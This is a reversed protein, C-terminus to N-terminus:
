YFRTQLWMALALESAKGMNDRGTDQGRAVNEPNQFSCKFVELSSIIKTKSISIKMKFDLCWTEMIRILRDLTEPSNAIRIIDDAFLLINILDGSELRVGVRSAIM